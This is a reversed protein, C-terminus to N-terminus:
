SVPNSTYISNVVDVLAWNDPLGTIGGILLPKRVGVYSAEKAVEMM